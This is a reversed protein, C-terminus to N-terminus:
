NLLVFLGGVSTSNLFIFAFLLVRIPLNETTIRTQDPKDRRTIFCLPQEPPKGTERRSGRHRQPPLLPPNFSLWCQATPGPSWDGCLDDKGGAEMESATERWEVRLLKEREMWGNRWASVDMNKEADCREKRVWGGATIKKKGGHASESLGGASTQVM